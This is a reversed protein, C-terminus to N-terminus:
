KVLTMIKTVIGEPTELRYAYVGGPLDGADFVATHRGAPRVGNELVRALRGQMDYVVLRVHVPSPLEYDIRTQPNFPNPYNGLLAVADPLEEEETHTATPNGTDGGTDGGGTDGGGTGSDGTDGGGTDGGGTGSDGTAGGGTDSGGTAGDVTAGDAYGEALLTNSGDLAAVNVTYSTGPSLGTVTHSNTSTEVSNGYDNSGTKWRVDYRTAGDVADWSVTLRTPDSAVPEVSLGTLAATGVGAPDGGGTEGDGTAGGTTGDAEGETLLVTNNEDRVAVHVTYTTGPSLGTITYSTTPPRTPRLEVADGYDAAGTKWRVHYLFAGTAELADWSVTLRTPDSAVPVVSLGTLAGMAVRFDGSGHMTQGFYSVRVRVWVYYRTGATLGTITHSTTEKTVDASNSSSYDEGQKRWEVRYGTVSTVDSHEETTAADWSVDLATSGSASVTPTGVSPLPARFLEKTDGDPADRTGESSWVWFRFYYITGPKLGINFFRFSRTSPDTLNASGLWQGNKGEKYAIVYGAAGAVPEWTVDLATSSGDVPDVYLDTLWGLRLRTVDDTTALATGDSGLATVKATYSVGVTLGHITYSAASAGTVEAVRTSTSYSQTGSKWQVRYKAADPYPSWNVILARRNWEDRVMNATWTTSTPTTTGVSHTAGRGHAYGSEMTSGDITTLYAVKFDYVTGPALCCWRQTTADKATTASNGTASYLGESAKKVRVRYGQNGPVAPWSVTLYQTANPVPSVTIPGPMVGLTTGSATAQALDARDADVATVEVTYTTNAALGAIITSDRNVYQPLSNWAGSGARWRLRYEAAGTYKTWSVKLQTASGSAPEVTLDALAPLVQGQAPLAALAGLVLLAFAGILVRVSGSRIIGM